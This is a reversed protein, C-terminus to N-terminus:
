VQGNKTYQHIDSDLPGYALLTYHKYVLCLMQMPMVVIISFPIKILVHQM